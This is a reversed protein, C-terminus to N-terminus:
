EPVPVQFHEGFCMWQDDPTHVERDKGAQGPVCNGFPLKGPPGNDKNKCGAHEEPGKKFVHHVPIYKVHDYLARPCLLENIYQMSIVVMEGAIFLPQKHRRDWTQDNCRHDKTKYVKGHCMVGEQKEGAKYQAVQYIPTHMVSDM